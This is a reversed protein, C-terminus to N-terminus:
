RAGCRECEHAYRGFRLLNGIYTKKHGCCKCHVAFRATGNNPYRTPLLEDVVWPGYTKNLENKLGYKNLTDKM